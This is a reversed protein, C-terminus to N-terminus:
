SVEENTAKAQREAERHKRRCQRTPNGGQCGVSHQTSSSIPHVQVLGVQLSVFANGAETGCTIQCQLWFAVFECAKQCVKGTMALEVESVESFLRPKCFYMEAVMYTAMTKCKAFNYLDDQFLNPQVM